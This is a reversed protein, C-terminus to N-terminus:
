RMIDAYESGCQPVCPSKLCFQASILLLNLELLFPLAVVCLAARCFFLLCCVVAFSCWHRLHEGSSQKRVYSIVALEKSHLLGRLTHLSISDKSLGPGSYKFNNEAQHRM